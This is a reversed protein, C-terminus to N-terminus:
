GDENSEGENNVLELFALYLNELLEDRDTDICSAGGFHNNVLEKADTVKEFKYVSEGVENKTKAMFKSIGQAFTTKKGISTYVVIPRGTKGGLYTGYGTILYYRSFDGPDEKTMQKVIDGVKFKEREFQM